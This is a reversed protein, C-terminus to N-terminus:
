RMMDFAYTLSSSNRHKVATYYRTVPVVNNSQQLLNKFKPCLQHRYFFIANLISNSQYASYQVYICVHLEPSSTLARINIYFTYM